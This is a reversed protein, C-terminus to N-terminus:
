KKKAAPTATKSAEASPTSVKGKPKLAMGQPILHIFKGEIIGNKGPVGTAIVFDQAKFKTEIKSVSVSYNKGDRDKITAVQDTLSTVQGWIIIKQESPAILVVVKKAHIVGTEDIDGLAAISAEEKITKITPIKTKPNQDEYETDQTVSAMKTGSITSLTLTSDSKSKVTGVFAKNSLKKNVEQKLKAAKSAIELKLADLKSRVDASPTSDTAFVPNVAFQSNILLASLIILLLKKM